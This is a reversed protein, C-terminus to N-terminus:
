TGFRFKLMRDRDDEHIGRMLWLGEALRRNGRRSSGYTGRTGNCIFRDNWFAKVMRRENRCGIM